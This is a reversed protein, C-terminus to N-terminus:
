PLVAYSSPGGRLDGRRIVKLLGRRKLNAIARRVTRADVGARRGLDAQSTRATGDPKTDRYLILWTTIESPSLQAMRRDVFANLVQFRNAAKRKADDAVSDKAPGTPPMQAAVEGQSDALLDTTM